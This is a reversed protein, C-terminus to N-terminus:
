KGAARAISPSSGLLVFVDDPGVVTRADPLFAVTKGDPGPRKVILARVGLADPLRAEALTKGHLSAPPDWEVLEFGPAVAVPQHGLSAMGGSLAQSADARLIEEQYASLVDSHSITGALIKKKKRDVVPLEPLRSSAFLALAASLSDGPELLPVGARMVDEAKLMGLLNPPSLLIRRADALVVAGLFAGGPGVVYFQSAESSVMRDLLSQAPADPSISEFRPVLFEAVRRARLLDPSRGSFLRIGERALKLTYISLNGTRRAVIVTSLISVFMVPLVISYNSTIEFVMVIATIPALMSGAVLGGMGVLAYAAVGGCRAGFWPEAVGGLAAGLLAGVALAPSFVGGSGGSGLTIGTAVMKAFVLLLLLGVGGPSAFADNALWHGDGLVHPLAIGLVGVLLGGVAPRSWLPLRLRPSDFFREAAHNIRVYALSVLGCLIGLCAYPVLEWPSAFTCAPPSFAPVNGHYARAVVTAVVSSVVIPGFQAAGFEGLVVEVAFLAGAIPANFTAAIGAAAGCGVLTRLRRKSMGMSQGIRSAIAAGIQIIPGERGASGGSGITVASTLIKALAVRGRIVGGRLAVAKMVEPVGHGKAESVFFNTVLGVLLGGFAPVLAIKWKPVERLFEIAPESAGWFGDQFLHIAVEFAIAGLGGLIGILSATFLVFVYEGDRAREIWSRLVRRSWRALALLRASPAFSKLAPDPM